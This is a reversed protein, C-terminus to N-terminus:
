SPLKTVVALLVTVRVQSLFPFKDYLFIYSLPKIIVVFRLLMVFGIIMYVLIISM